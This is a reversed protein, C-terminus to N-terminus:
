CDSRGAAIVTGGINERGIRELLLEGDCDSVEYDGGIHEVTGLADLNVSAINSHTISLKGGITRLASLGDVSPLNYMWELVLDGEIVDLSSLPELSQLSIDGKLIISGTVRKVGTYQNLDDQTTARLDGALIGGESCFACTGTAPAGARSVAGASNLNVSGGMSSSRRLSTGGTASSSVSRRATTGGKAVSGSSERTTTGGKAVSGSSERVTTGGKAASGSSERTASGGTNSRGYTASTLSTSAGGLHDGSESGPEVAVRGGCDLTCLHISVLLLGRRGVEAFGTKRAFLM